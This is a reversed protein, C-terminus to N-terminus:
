CRWRCRSWGARAPRLRQERTMPLSRAAPTRGPRAADVPHGAPQGVSPRRALAEAPCASTPRSSPRAAARRRTASASCRSSRGHGGSAAHGDRHHPRPEALLLRLGGGVATASRSPRAPGAPPATRPAREGLATPAACATATDEHVVASCRASCRQRSRARAVLHHDRREREDGGGVRDAVDPRVRDEGVDVRGRPVQGRRRDLRASVARVRATMTTCWPPTGASRSACGPARALRPADGHDLVGGARGPEAYRPRGTPARRRRAAQENWGRLSRVVPSPPM